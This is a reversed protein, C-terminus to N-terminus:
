CVGPQDGVAHADQLTVQRALGQSLAKPPALWRAGSHHAGLQDLKGLVVVRRGRRALVEKPLVQKPWRVRVHHREDVRGAKQGHQRHETRPRAQPDVGLAAEEARLVDAEAEGGVRVRWVQRADHRRELRELREQAGEAHPLPKLWAVVHVCVRAENAIRGIGRQRGLLDARADRHELGCSARRGARGVAGLRQRAEVEEQGVGRTDESRGGLQREVVGRPHRGSQTPAGVAAPHPEHVLGDRGRQGFPHAGARQAVQQQELLLEGVLQGARGDLLDPAREVVRAVVDM